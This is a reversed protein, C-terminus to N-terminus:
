SKVENFRADAMGKARDMSDAIFVPFCAKPQDHRTALRIRERVDADTDIFRVTTQVGNPYHLTWSSPFVEGNDASDSLLRKVEELHKHQLAALKKMVSQTILVGCFVGHTYDYLTGDHIEYSM